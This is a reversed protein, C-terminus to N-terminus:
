ALQVKRLREAELRLTAALSNGSNDPLAACMDAAKDIGDLYGLYRADKLPDISAAILQLVSDSVRARPKAEGGIGEVSAAPREPGLDHFAYVTRGGDLATGVCRLKRGAAVVEVGPALRATM